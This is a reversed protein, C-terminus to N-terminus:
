EDDTAEDVLSYSTLKDKSEVDSEMVLKRKSLSSVKEALASTEVRYHLQPSPIEPSEDCHPDDAFLSDIFEEENINEPSTSAVDHKSNRTKVM